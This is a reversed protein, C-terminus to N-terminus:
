TGTLSAGAVALAIGVVVLLLGGARTVRAGRPSTVLGNRRATLPASASITGTRLDIGETALIAPHSVLRSLTSPPIDGPVYAYEHPGIAQREALSFGAELAEREADPVPHWAVHVMPRPAGFIVPVLALVVLGAALASAARIVFFRTPVRESASVQVVP